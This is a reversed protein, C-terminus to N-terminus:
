HPVNRTKPEIKFLIETNYDQICLCRCKHISWKAVLGILNIANNVKVNTEIGEVIINWTVFISQEYLNQVINEVVRWIKRAIICEFYRHKVTDNVNCYECLADRRKNWQYLKVNNICSRHLFKWHFVRLRNENTVKHALKWINEWNPSHLLKNEWVLM